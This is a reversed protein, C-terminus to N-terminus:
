CCCRRPSAPPACRRCSRWGTSGRCRRDVVLVDFREALVRERAALGDSLHTVDYVESLVEVTMGAITPDDEVYLLRPRAGDRTMADGIKVTMM